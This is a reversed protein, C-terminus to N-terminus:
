VYVLLDPFGLELLWVDSCFDKLCFLFYASQLQNNNAVMQHRFAFISRRESVILWSWNGRQSSATRVHLYTTAAAHHRRWSSHVRNERNHLMCVTRYSYWDSFMRSQSKSLNVKKTSNRWSCCNTAEKFHTIPPNCSEFQISNYGDTVILIARPATFTYIFICTFHYCREIYLGGLNISSYDRGNYTDAFGVGM